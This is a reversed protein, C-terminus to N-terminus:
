QFIIFTRSIVQLFCPGALVIDSVALVHKHITKEFSHTHTTRFLRNSQIPNAEDM